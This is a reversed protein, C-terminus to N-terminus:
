AVRKNLFRGCSRLGVLDFREQGVLRPGWAGTGGAGQGVRGPGAGRRPGEGREQIREAGEGSEPSPPWPTVPSEGGQFTKGERGPEGDQQGELSGRWVQPRPRANEPMRRAGLTM